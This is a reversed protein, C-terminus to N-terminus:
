VLFEADSKGKSDDAQDGEKGDEVSHPQSSSSQEQLETEDHKVSGQRKRPKRPAKETALAKRKRAGATTGQNPAPLAVTAALSPAAAAGARPEVMAPKARGPNGDAHRASKPSPFSNKGRKQLKGEM